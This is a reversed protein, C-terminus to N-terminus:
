KHEYGSQWGNLMKPDKVECHLEQEVQWLKDAPHYNYLPSIIAFCNGAKAEPYVKGNAVAVRVLLGETSM